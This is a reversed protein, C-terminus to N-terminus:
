LFFLSSCMGDDRSINFGIIGGGGKLEGYSGAKGGSGTWDAQMSKPTSKQEGDQTAQASLSSLNQQNFADLYEQSHPGVSQVKYICQISQLYYKSVLTFIWHSFEHALTARLVAELALALRRKPDFAMALTWQDFWFKTICIYPWHGQQQLHLGYGDQAPQDLILLDPPNNRILNIIRDGHSALESLSLGDHWNENRLFISVYADILPECGRPTTIKTRFDLWFATFPHDASLENSPTIGAIFDSRSIQFIKGTTTSTVPTM